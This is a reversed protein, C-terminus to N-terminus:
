GDRRGRWRFTRRALLLGGLTWGALILATKGHEWSYVVEQSLITDPLFASRFGQAMWRLPFLAGAQLLPEPLANVPTFYVGSCFGLVLYMLSLVVPASRASGALGSAAVGLLACAACGLVLVWGLTFWRGPTAPLRLGFLLVGTACVLVVEAATVALAMLAKGVFYAAPPMPVGRLRRLTGDDRDTAIGGGLNLFTTSALGAALMGPVFYQASTVDSGEYTGRFITGLIILLVVPFSLTFVMADWQRYFNKLEVGARAVGLRWTIM